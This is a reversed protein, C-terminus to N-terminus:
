NAKGAGDLSGLERGVGGWREREGKNEHDWVQKYFFHPTKFYFYSYGACTATITSAAQNAFGLASNKFM